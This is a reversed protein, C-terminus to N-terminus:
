RLPDDGGDPQVHTMRVTLRFVDPRIFTECYEIPGNDSDAVRRLVLLPTGPEVRLFQAEMFGSLMTGVEEQIDTVQVGYSRNLHGYLDTSIEGASMLDPFRSQPLYNVMYGFPVEDVSQIRQLRYVTAGIDANLSRAVNESAAVTDMVARTNNVKGPGDTEYRVFVRTRTDPMSYKERIVAEKELPLVKSGSGQRVEVMHNDRLMAIAHRITTKSVNYIDMLENETPLFSDVPYKGHLIDHRLATYLEAYKPMKSPM